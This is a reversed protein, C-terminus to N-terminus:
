SSSEHNKNRIGLYNLTTGLEYCNSSTGIKTGMKLIQKVEGADGSELSGKITLNNCIGSELAKLHRRSCFVKLCFLLKRKSLRIDLKTNM